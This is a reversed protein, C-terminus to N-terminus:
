AGSHQANRGDTSEPTMEIPGEYKVNGDKDRVVVDAVIKGQGAKLKHVVPAVAAELRKLAAEYEARKADAAAEREGIAAERAEIAKM